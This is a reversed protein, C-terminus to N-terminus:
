YNAITIHLTSIDANNLTGALVSAMIPVSATGLAGPTPNGNLVYGGDTAACTNATSRTMSVRSKTASLIPISTITAAGAVLAQTITVERPFFLPDNTGVTGAATNKWDTDSFVTGASVSVHVQGDQIVKGAPLIELRTLPAVGAAVAGIRYLGNQAATTQAIALVIDGEVGLTADNNSANSAVTYAALDAVNSNLVNRAQIAIRMQPNALFPRFAADTTNVTVAASNRFVAGGYLTGGGVAFSVAGAEITDGTALSAIRTLAALGASVAGVLYLGNQAATTQALLAVVNGEVHTLGDTSTSVAFAALDAVNALVVGDAHLALARGSAVAAGDYLSPMGIEVAVQQYTPSSSSGDYDVIRGAAPRLGSGDTLSVENDYVAYAMLGRSARSAGSCTFYFRGPKCEITLAGAAGSTNDVTKEARGVCRLATSASAPVAYGSANIAVLSGAYIKTSAALELTFNGESALQVTDRSAALATM